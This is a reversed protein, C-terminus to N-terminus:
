KHVPAIPTGCEPCLAARRASSSPARIDYACTPCLGRNLARRHRRSLRITIALTAALLLAVLCTDMLCGHIQAESGAGMEDDDCWSVGLHSFKVSNGVDTQSLSGAVSNDPEDCHECLFRDGQPPHPVNGAELWGHLHVHYIWGIRGGAAYLGFAQSGAVREGADGRYDAALAVYLPTQRTCIWLLLTALLALTLIATFIFTM